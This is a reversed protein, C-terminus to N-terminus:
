ILYSVESKKMVRMSDDSLDGHKMEGRLYTTTGLHGFSLALWKLCHKAEHQEEASFEIITKPMTFYEKRTINNVIGLLALGCVADDHLGTPATYRVGTRTYEFEFNRM